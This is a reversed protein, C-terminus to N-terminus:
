IYSAIRSAHIRSIKPEDPPLASADTVAYSPGALLSFGSNTNPLRDANARLREAHCQLAGFEIGIPVDRLGIKYKGSVLRAFM